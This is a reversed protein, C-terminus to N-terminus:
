IAFAGSRSFRILSTKKKKEKKKEKKKKTSPFCLVFIISSSTYWDFSQSFSLFFSLSFHNNSGRVNHLLIVFLLWFSIVVYIAFSLLKNVFM